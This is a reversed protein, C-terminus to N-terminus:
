SLNKVPLKVLFIFVDSLFSINKQFEFSVTFSNWVLGNFKTNFYHYSILM